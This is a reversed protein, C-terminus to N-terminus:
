KRWYDTRLSALDVIECYKRQSWLKPPQRLVGLNVRDIWGRVMSSEAGSGCMGQGVPAALTM